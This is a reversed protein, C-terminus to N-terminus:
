IGKTHQCSVVKGGLPRQHQHTHRHAGPVPVVSPLGRGDGGSCPEGAGGTSHVCPCDCCLLLIPSHPIIHTHYKLEGRVKLLQITRAASQGEKNSATLTYLGSVSNDLWPLHVHHKAVISYFPHSLFETVIEARNRMGDSRFIQFAVVASTSYVNVDFHGSTNWHPFM